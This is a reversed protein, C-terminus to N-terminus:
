GNLGVGPVGPMMPQVPQVGPQQTRVASAAAGLAAITQRGTERLRDSRIRVIDDVSFGLGELVIDSDAPLIGAGVLKITRDAAAQPTPTSPDSWLSKISGPPPLEGDRWLVALEGVEILGLDYPGRRRVARKDLRSNSERIADASSPNDTHFGLHSAPLGTAGSMLQTLTKLVETFPLPSAGAFSGPVPLEDNEDRPIALMKGIVADWQSKKNGDLDVFMSEDAGMLYRQPAGYFERAVEMGLLTRMGTETISRVARTIESRGYPRDLRPRNRVAAVPVRGKNHQDRNTVVVRNPKTSLTITENPLYMRWGNRHGNADYLEVLADALRATRDSWTGTMVSPSAPRVLVDPETDEGTGVTLFSIGNILSDLVAQGVHLPLNNQETVTDLGLDDGPVYWGRWDQREDVVDVVIEPWGVVAEIDLLHPPIAIGMDRLRKSGEYYSLQRTNSQRAKRLMGMLRIRTADETEALTHLRLFAPATPAIAEPVFLEVTM